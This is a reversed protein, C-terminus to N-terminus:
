PLGVAFRTKLGELTHEWQERDRELSTFTHACFSHVAEPIGFLLHADQGGIGLPVFREECGLDALARHVAAFVAASDYYDGFNRCAVSYAREGSIFALRYAPQEHEVGEPSGTQLVAEPTFRGRSAAAAYGVLREHQPPYSGEADYVLVAASDHLLAWLADVDNELSGWSIARLRSWDRESPRREILGAELAWTIADDLQIGELAWLAKQRDRPYMRELLGVATACAHRGGIQLLAHACAAAVSGDRQQLCADAIRAVAAQDQSGALAIGLAEVAGRRQKPDPLRELLLPVVARGELRAVGYLAEQALVPDASLLSQLGALASPGAHRSALGVDLSREGATTTVRRLLAEAALASEGERGRRVIQRLTDVAARVADGDAEGRSAEALRDLRGPGLEALPDELLRLQVARATVALDPGAELEGWASAVAAEGLLPRALAFNRVLEALADRAMGPQQSSLTRALAAPAEAEGLAGLLLAANARSGGSAGADGRALSQLRERDAATAEKLQPRLEAAHLNVRNLFDLLRSFPVSPTASPQEAASRLQSLVAPEM